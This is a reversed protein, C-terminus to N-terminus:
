PHQRYKAVPPSIHKAAWKTPSSPSILHLYLWITVSIFTRMPNISHPTPPQCPLPPNPAPSVAGAPSIDVRNELRATTSWQRTTWMAHSILSPRINSMCKRTIWPMHNDLYGDWAYTQLRGTLCPSYLLSWVLPSGGEMPTPNPWAMSPWQQVSSHFEQM